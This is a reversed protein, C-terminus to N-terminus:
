LRNILGNGYCAAQGTQPPNTTAHKDTLEHSNGEDPFQAYKARFLEATILNIITASGSASSFDTERTNFSYKVLWTVKALFIFKQAVASSVTVQYECLVVSQNFKNVFLIKAGCYM